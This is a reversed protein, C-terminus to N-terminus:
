QIIGDCVCVCVYVSVNDICMYTHIYKVVAYKANRNLEDDDTLYIIKWKLLKSNKLCKWSFSFVNWNVDNGRERERETKWEYLENLRFQYLWNVHMEMKAKFQISWSKNFKIQYILKAHSIEAIIAMSLLLVHVPLASM